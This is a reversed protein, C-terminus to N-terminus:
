LWQVRISRQGDEGVGDGSSGDAQVIIECVPRETKAGPCIMYNGDPVLPLLMALWERIQTENAGHYFAWCPSAPATDPVGTEEYRGHATQIRHLVHLTRFNSPMELMTKDKERKMEARLEEVSSPTAQTYNIYGLKYLMFVTAWVQERVASYFFPRDCGTPRSAEEEEEGTPDFGFWPLMSKINSIAGLGWLMADAEENSVHTLIRQQIKGPVPYAHEMAKLQDYLRHVAVNQINPTREIIKCIKDPHHQCLLDFLNAQDPGPQPSSAQSSQTTTAM